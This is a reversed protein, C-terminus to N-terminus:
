KFEQIGLVTQKTNWDTELESFFLLRSKNLVCYAPMSYSNVQFTSKGIDQFYNFLYHEYSFNSINLQGVISKSNFLYCKKDIAYGDLSTIQLPVNVFFAKNQKANFTMIKERNYGMNASGSVKLLSSSILFLVNEQDIVRCVPSAYGNSSVFAEFRFSDVDFFSDRKISYRHVYNYNNNKNISMLIITDKFKAIKKLRWSSTTAYEPVFSNFFSNHKSSAGFKDFSNNKVSYIWFNNPTWGLFTTDLKDPALYLPLVDTNTAGTSGISQTKKLESKADNFTLISEPAGYQNTTLIISENGLDISYWQWGITYTPVIVHSYITPVPSKNVGAWMFSDLPKSSSTSATNPLVVSNGNSIMLTDGSLKLTQLENKPDDDNLVLVGGNLSLTVTDKQRTLTQLENKPDDDNFIFKGGNQSLSVTDKTRTLLQLENKPDEDLLVVKGGGDSLILTDNNRALKQWENGIVTDKDSTKIAALKALLVKNLSDLSKYSVGGENGIVTDKDRNKLYNFKNNLANLASDTSTSTSKKTVFAYPVSWFRELSTLKYSGSNDFDIEVQLHATGLDWPIKTFDGSIVNGQGIILNFVGYDDTKTAHSESYQNSGGPYKEFITFRVNIDKNSWYIAQPNQGAISYPGDKVAVAQYAIGQPLNQAILHCFSICIIALTTIRKM